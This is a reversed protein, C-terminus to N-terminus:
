ILIFEIGCELDFCTEFAYKQLFTEAVWKNIFKYKNIRCKNYPDNKFKTSM